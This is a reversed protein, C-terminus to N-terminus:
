RNAFERLIDDASLKRALTQRTRLNILTFDGDDTKIAVLGVCWAAETASAELVRSRIVEKTPLGM